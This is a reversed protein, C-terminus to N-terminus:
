DYFVESIAALVAPGPDYGQDIIDSMDAAPNDSFKLVALATLTMAASVQTNTILDPDKNKMAKFMVQMQVHLLDKLRQEMAETTM